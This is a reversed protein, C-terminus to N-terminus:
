SKLFTSLEIIVKTGVGTNQEDYKDVIELLAHFGQKQLVDIRDKSIRLGKSEHRKAKSQQEKLEFSKKRGIGNDDIVCLFIDESIRKFTITLKREGDKHMLGHWLANEVYPQVLMSPILIDDMELEEDVQMEYCFSKEFRMQELELYLELVEKEESLAVLNKGSNNLVM